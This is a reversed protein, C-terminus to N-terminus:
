KGSIIRYPVRQLSGYIAQYSTNLVCRGSSWHVEVKSLMFKTRPMVANGFYAAVIHLNLSSVIAWFWLRNYTVKSCQTEEKIMKGWGKERICDPTSSGDCFFCCEILCLVRLHCVCHLILACRCYWILLLLWTMSYLHIFSSRSGELNTQSWLGPRKVQFFCLVSAPPRSRGSWSRRTTTFWSGTASKGSAKAASGPRQPRWAACGSWALFIAFYM